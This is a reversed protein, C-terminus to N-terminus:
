NRAPRQVSQLGMNAALFLAPMERKTMMTEFFLNQEYVGAARAQEFVTDREAGDGVLLLRSDSGLAFLAKALEVAYGVGNM